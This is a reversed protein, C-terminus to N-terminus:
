LIGNSHLRQALNRGADAATEGSAFVCHAQRSEPAFLKTLVIRCRLPQALGIDAASWSVVPKKRAARRQAINSYRLVGVENSVVVVAPLPAKVKDYGASTLREVTTYSGHVEVKRALAIAPVGLLHAVCAGVQGANWDAAQRGALILDYAGMKKMTAALVSATAFSDLVSSAFGKDEIKVFADAGVALATEVVTRSIKKGASVATIKVDGVACSEKIRLAAELANEDFPSLVPLVGRPEVRLEAANITFSESGCEPDPVQKVFVVIEM